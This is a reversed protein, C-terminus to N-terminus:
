GMGMGNGDWGKGDWGTGDGMEDWGGDRAMGVCSLGCRRFEEHGKSLKSGVKSPMSSRSIEPRYELHNIVM